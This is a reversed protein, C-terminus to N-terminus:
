NWQQIQRLGVLFIHAETCLIEGLNCFQIRNNLSVPPTSSSTRTRKILNVDIHCWSTICLVFGLPGIERARELSTSHLGLIGGVLKARDIRDVRGISNEAIRFALARMEM